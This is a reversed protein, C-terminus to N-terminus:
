CRDPKNRCYLRRNTYQEDFAETGPPATIAAHGGYPRTPNFANSFPSGFPGPPDTYLQGTMFFFDYSAGHLLIAGYFMWMGGNPDGLALLLYRVVWCVLGLIVIARVTM